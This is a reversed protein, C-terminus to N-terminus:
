RTLSKEGCVCPHDQEKIVATVCSKSKGAYAPTIRQEINHQVYYIVKGRMRLPSGYSPYWHRRRRAKGRMRLPSGPRQFDTWQLYAKEGCVCPHDKIDANLGKMAASKGAYAPTIGCYIYTGTYKEDKGRM